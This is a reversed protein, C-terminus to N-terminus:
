GKYDTKVGKSLVVFSGWREKLETVDFFNVGDSWDHGDWLFRHAKDTKRDLGEIVAGFNHPFDYVVKREKRRYAKTDTNPYPPLGNLWVGNDLIWKGGSRRITTGTSVVKKVDHGEVSFFFRVIKLEDGLNIDEFEVEVWKKLNVM